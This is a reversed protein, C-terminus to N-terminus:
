SSVTLCGWLQVDGRNPRTSDLRLWQVWVGMGAQVLARARPIRCTAACIRKKTVTGRTLGATTAVGLLKIETVLKMGLFRLWPGLTANGKPSNCVVKAKDRNFPLKCADEVEEKLAIVFNQVQRAINAHTSVLHGSADDM